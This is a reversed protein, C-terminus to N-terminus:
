IKLSSLGGDVHLIQGTIWKSKDSLLFVIMEAIDNPEGIEKLPHREKSKEMKAESNLLRDALPTQTLSPAICNVRINPAFEAALSRTIGEIAAKSAAVSTHYPMGQSVAVTSILVISPHSTSLKLRKVNAKITKIAGLVNVKFDNLYDDESLSKFPKLNITGPFYVLGDISDPLFSFDLDEDMVDLKQTVVYESKENEISRSAAYVKHGQASLIEKTSQGIGSNGGIILYKNM